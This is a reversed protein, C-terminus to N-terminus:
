RAHPLNDDDARQLGDHVIVLEEGASGFTLSAPWGNRFSWRAVRELSSTDIVTIVGDQIAQDLHGAQVSGRWAWLTTGSLGSRRLVINHWELAGPDKQRVLVGADTETVDAEIDNSSGLGVCETYQAVLGGGLRVEFLFRNPNDSSLLETDATGTNQGCLKVNSTLVLSILIVSCLIALPWVHNRKM